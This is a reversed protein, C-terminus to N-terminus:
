EGTEEFSARNEAAIMTADGRLLQERPKEKAPEILSDGVSAQGIITAAVNRANQLGKKAEVLGYLAVGQKGSKQLLEAASTLEAAVKLVEDRLSEVDTVTMYVRTKAAM